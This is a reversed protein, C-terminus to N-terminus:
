SQVSRKQVLASYDKFRPHRADVLWEFGVTEVTTMTVGLQELRRLATEQDVAFRSGVADVCLYIALGEHLLDLATNLVCVHAEIGVLVIQSREEQRFRDVLGPVGCCSFMTKEPREPLRSALDAVTPGLGKPYQETAFVPVDVLRATDILFAMNSVLREAGPIKVMLKQQVDVVLVAALNARLQNPHPM